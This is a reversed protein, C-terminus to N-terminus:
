VRCAQEHCEASMAGRPVVAYAQISNQVLVGLAKGLPPATEPDGKHSCEWVPKLSRLRHRLTQSVQELAGHAQGEQSEQSPQTEQSPPV